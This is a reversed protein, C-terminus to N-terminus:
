VVHTFNAVIQALSVHKQPIDRVIDVLVKLMDNPVWVIWVHECPQRTLQSDQDDVQTGQTSLMRQDGSPEDGSEDDSSMSHQIENRVKDVLSQAEKVNDRVRQVTDARRHDEDMKWEDELEALALDLDREASSLDRQLRQMRTSLDGGTTSKKCKLNEREETTVM